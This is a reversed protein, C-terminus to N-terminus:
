KQRKNHLGVAATEAHPMECTAIRLGNPLKTLRSKNAM